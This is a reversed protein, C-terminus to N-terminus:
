DRSTSTATAGQNTGRPPKVLEGTAPDFYPLGERQRRALWRRSRESMEEVAALKQRVSLKMWVLLQARESGEATCQEWGLGSPDCTKIEM